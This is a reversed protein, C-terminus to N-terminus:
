RAHSLILWGVVFYFLFIPYCALVKRRPPQSDAVFATSAFTSWAFAAAVVIVRTAFLGVSESSGLLLVLQCVVAAITLPLLCYGLVCVSQLFSIAGGILKSNLTVVVAGLWIVVFVEAFHADGGGGGDDSGDRRLLAALTICLLLPGWLDWDRLLAPNRRPYFVHRFKVGVARLDRVVTALVPEDLTDPDSLDDAAAAVSSAAGPVMIDGELDLEGISQDLQEYHFDATDANRASTSM